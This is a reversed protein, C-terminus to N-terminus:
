NLGIMMLSLEKEYLGTTIGFCMTYLYMSDYTVPMHTETLSRQNIRPKNLSSKEVAYGLNSVPVEQLFTCAM